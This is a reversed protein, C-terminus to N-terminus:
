SNIHTPKTAPTSSSPHKDKDFVSHLGVILEIAGLSSSLHGGHASVVELIRGRLQACVQELHPLDREYVELDM